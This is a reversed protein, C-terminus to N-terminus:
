APRLGLVNYLRAFDFREDMMREFRTIKKEQHFRAKGFIEELLQVATLTDHKVLIVPVGLEEARCLIIPSPYLNGTLVLCKTSTELAALHIDPRDGGTIVAKNPKRRFYTLASDVSMAGVMLNEVLEELRDDCCLIEGGLVEAIERVTVSLFIRQQPLVAYVPIGRQELFPTVSSEVFDMRHQPVANIVTGLMSDGLLTRSGLIEDVILDNDYRAVILARAQFLEAIQYTPLNVMSGEMLSGGGEVIMVDKNESIIAFAEKIQRIYDNSEGRLTREVVLPDLGVPWIAAASETLGLARRMFSADEDIVRTGVRKVATTIPRMYGVKLGNRQFHHGLAVCVASKGSFPEPSMVSLTIM